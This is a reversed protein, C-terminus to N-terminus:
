LLNINEPFDFHLTNKQWQASGITEWDGSLNSKLLDKVWITPSTIKKLKINFMTTDLDLGSKIGWFATTKMIFKSLRQQNINPTVAINAWMSHVRGWNPSKMRGDPSVLPLWAENGQKDQYTIAVIHNYGEFHDHLYLAHPTIGLFNTSFLIISNSINSITNSIVSVNKLLDLRYFLGYHVSTNIQLLFILILIKSIKHINKKANKSIKKEFVDEYLSSYGSTQTESVCHEACAIRSRSDAIKRYYHSALQYILPAKLLYGVPALYHMKILIQAYTDVGAYLNKNNDLAYLDKMLIEAPIKNLAPYEASYVQAEKFNITKFLDFHNLILITRCCLPCQQDYFVTLLPTKATMFAAIKRYWSFPMVLCYFVLTGVGFPYINLTLTIGLHLGAGILFFLPRLQKKHVLFVFSFQFIFLTYGITKQLLENNLLWTMNIPSIYYPMSAPLWAGLGNRWHEAFLKHIASDFYLFGLCITVPITYALVSVDKKLYDSYHVFPKQLKKRLTDIAFSKDTPMFILFFNAGIMFMDFGGDFDRQMPTFNVFVIWFIYNVIISQQCRFGICIFSAAVGWLGLFFPIMPFEVDMYPIPDFILHNFYLLFAIEQLTVLGFLCRFLGIGTSPVKTYYLRSITAYIYKYM